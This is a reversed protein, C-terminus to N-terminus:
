FTNFDKYETPLTVSTTGYNSYTFTIVCDIFQVKIFFLKGNDFKIICNSVTGCDYIDEINISDTEYQNNDKNYTFSSYRNKFSESPLKWRDDDIDGIDFFIIDNEYRIWIDDKKYYEFHKDSETSYYAESIISEYITEYSEYGYIRKEIDDIQLLFTLKEREVSSFVNIEMIYTFTKNGLSAAFDFAEKWQQETVTNGSPGKDSPEQDTPQQNSPEQNDSEQENNCAPLCLSLALVLILLIIIHKKM